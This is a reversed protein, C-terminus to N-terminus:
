GTQPTPVEQERPSEEQEEDPTPKPVNGLRPYEPVVAGGSIVMKLADEVKMDLPVAHKEPVMVFWGSTPNPTTPLFVNLLKEDSKAKVEGRGPSTVFGITFLGKRPYELLVVGTFVTKNQGWFAQSIQKLAIYVRSVIPIKTLFTEGIRLVRRGLFNRALIGILVTLAIMLFFVVLRFLLQNKQLFQTIIVYTGGKQLLDEDTVLGAVRGSKDVVVAVQQRTQEFERQLESINKNAPVTSIWPYMVDKVRTRSLEEPTADKPLHRLLFLGVPNDVQRAYVPFRYGGTRLVLDRAQALPQDQELWHVDARRVMVSQVTKETQFSRLLWNYGPGTVRGFLWWFLAITGLLPVLVLVGAVFNNRLWTRFTM